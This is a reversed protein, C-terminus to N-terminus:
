IRCTGVNRLKCANLFNVLSDIPLLHSSDLLVTGSPTRVNLRIGLSQRVSLGLNQFGQAALNTGYTVVHRGGLGHAPDVPAYWLISAEM